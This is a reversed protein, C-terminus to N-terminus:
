YVDSVTFYCFPLDKSGARLILYMEKLIIKFAHCNSSFSLLSRSILHIYLFVM